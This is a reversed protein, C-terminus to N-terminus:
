IKEPQHPVTKNRPFKRNFRFTHSKQNKSFQPHLHWKTPQETTVYPCPVRKNRGNLITVHCERLYWKLMHSTWLVFMDRKAEPLTKCGSFYNVMDSHLAKILWQSETSQVNYLIKQSFYSEIHKNALQNNSYTRMNKTNVLDQQNSFHLWKIITSM